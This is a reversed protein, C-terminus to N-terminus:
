YNDFAQRLDEILDEVDELGISLRLTQIPIGTAALEEDNLEHHTTRASNSILSRADGINVHFSFIKLTEIFRKSEEETGNFGFAFLGGTGKPFYKKAQKKYKNQPTAPHSVWSVKPHKHLFTAIRLASDSEKRVRESLTELGQLILYANFPALPAGLLNLYISRARAAFPFAPFTEVVNRDGLTFVKEEFQPHRGALWNFKGADLILGGIVAGHGSYAKTTSYVVVDAGYEIPNLLYPTALTNDVILPIGHKHVEAAIEELDAVANIPNSISELFVAKTDKKILSRLAKLDNVDDLLDIEM